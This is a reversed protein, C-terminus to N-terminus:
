NLLSGQRVFMKRLIEERSKNKTFKEYIEEAARKQFNRTRHYLAIRNTTIRMFLFILSARAWLLM